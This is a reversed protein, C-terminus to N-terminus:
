CPGPASPGSEPTSMSADKCGQTCGLMRWRSARWGRGPCGMNISHLLPTDAHGPLIAAPCVATRTPSLPSGPLSILSCGLPVTPFRPPPINGASDRLRQLPGPPGRPGVKRLSTRGSPAAGAAPPPLRPGLPPPTM